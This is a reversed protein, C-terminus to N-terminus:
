EQGGSVFGSSTGAVMGWHISTDEGSSLTNLSGFATNDSQFKLKGEYANGGIGLEYTFDVSPHNQTSLDQDTWVCMDIAFGQPVPSNNSNSNSQSFAVYFVIKKADVHLNYIPFSANSIENGSSDCPYAYFYSYPDNNNSLLSVEQGRINYPAFVENDPLTLSVSVDSAPVSGTPSMVWLTAQQTYLFDKFAPMSM